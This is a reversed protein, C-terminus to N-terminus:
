RLFSPRPQPAGLTGPLTVIINDGQVEVHLDLNDTM